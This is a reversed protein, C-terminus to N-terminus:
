SLSEPTRRGRRPPAAMTDAASHSTAIQLILVIIAIALLYNIGVALTYVGILGPFWLALLVFFAIWNVNL